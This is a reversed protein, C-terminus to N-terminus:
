ETPKPYPRLIYMEASSRPSVLAALLYWPSVVSWEELTLAGSQIRSAAFVLQKM